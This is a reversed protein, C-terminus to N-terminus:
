NPMDKGIKSNFYSLTVGKGEKSNASFDGGYLLNKLRLNEIELSAVKEKLVSNERRLRLCIRDVLGDIEKKLRRFQIEPITSGQEKKIPAVSQGRERSIEAIVENVLLTNNKVSNRYKNQLRLAYKTDNNALSLITSRVSKGDAKATLVKKLLEREQLTDFEEIKTVNLPKGNLYKNCFESNERSIKAIAYYMNRVTGKSKKSLKAYREFVETLSQNGKELIFETFKKVETQKYGYIKEM